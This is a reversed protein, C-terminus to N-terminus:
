ENGTTGADIIPSPILRKLFRKLAIRPSHATVLATSACRILVVYAEYLALRARWTSISRRDRKWGVVFPYM